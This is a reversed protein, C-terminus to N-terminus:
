LSPSYTRGLSQYFKQMQRNLYERQEGDPPEAELARRMLAIAREGQGKKYYLEAYTDLYVPSDAESKLAQLSLELARDLELNEEGYTWALNNLLAPSPPQPGRRLAQEYYDIARRRLGQQYCLGAIQSATATPDKSHELAAAFRGDAEELHGQQLQCEGLVLLLGPDGPVRHLAQELVQAAEAFRRHRLYLRGLQVQAFTTTSDGAAAQELWQRAQAEDDLQAYVWGLNAQALHNEPQAALVQALAQRGLDFRGEEQCVQRLAEYYQPNDPDALIAQQLAAVAEAPQALGLQAMAMALYSSADAHDERVARRAEVLAQEYHGQDLYYLALRRHDASVGCQPNEIVFVGLLALAGVLMAPQKNM